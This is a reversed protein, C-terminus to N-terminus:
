QFRVNWALNSRSTGSDFGIGDLARIREATMSTARGETNKKYRTSQKSGVGRAQPQCLVKEARARSHAGSNHSNAKRGHVSTANDQTNVCSTTQELFCFRVGM